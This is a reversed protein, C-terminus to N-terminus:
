RGEKEPSQTNKQL